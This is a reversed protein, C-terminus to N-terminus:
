LCGARWHRGNKWRAGGAPLPRSCRALPHPPTEVPESGRITGRVRLSQKAGGGDNRAFRLLGHSPTALDFISQKAGSAIVATGIACVEQLCVKAIEGCGRLNQTAM